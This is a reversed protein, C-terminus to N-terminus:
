QTHTCIYSERNHHSRTSIQTRSGTKFKDLTTFIVASSCDRHNNTSRDTYQNCSEDNSAQWKGYKSIQYTYNHYNTCTHEEMICSFCRFLELRYSKQYLQVPSDNLSTCSFASRQTQRFGDRNNPMDKNALKTRSFQVIDRKM